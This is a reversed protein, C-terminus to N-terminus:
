NLRGWLIQKAWLAPQYFPELELAKNYYIIAQRYDGREHFIRGINMLPYHRAEYRPAECAMQLWPLAEDFRKLEILYAGIDNYPNGLEPDLTIAEQCLEIAEEYRGLMSLTWALFTYAEATPFVAISEKYLRIAQGFEGSIQHEYAEQWLAEAQKYQINDSM